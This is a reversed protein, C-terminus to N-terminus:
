LFNPLSSSPRRCISEAFLFFLLILYLPINIYCSYIIKFTFNSSCLLLYIYNTYYLAWFINLHVFSYWFYGFLFIKVSYFFRYNKLILISKVSIAVFFNPSCIISSYSPSDSHSLDYKMTTKFIQLHFCESLIWNYYFYMFSQLIFTVYLLVHTVVFRAYQACYINKLKLM